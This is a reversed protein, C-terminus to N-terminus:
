GIEGILGTETLFHIINDTLPTYRIDESSNNKRRDIYQLIVNKSLTKEKNRNALYAM